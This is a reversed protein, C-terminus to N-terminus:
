YAMMKMEEKGQFTHMSIMEINSSGRSSLSLLDRPHNREILLLNISIERQKTKKRPQFVFCADCRVLSCDDEFLANKEIM